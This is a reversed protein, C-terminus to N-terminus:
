KSSNVHKIQQLVNVANEFNFDEVLIFDQDCTSVYFLSIKHQALIKAVWNVMTVDFGDEGASILIYRWSSANVQVYPLSAHSEQFINAEKSVILSVEDGSTLFSFFQSESRGVNIFYRLLESAFQNLYSRPFSIIQLIEDSSEVSLRNMGDMAAEEGSSNWDANDKLLTLALHQNHEEVLILDTHYTSLYLMDIGEQALPQSFRQVWGTQNIAEAGEYIQIAKWREPLEVIVENSFKSLSEEDLILSFEGDAETFSFFKETYFALELIERFARGYDTIKARVVFNDLCSVPNQDEM